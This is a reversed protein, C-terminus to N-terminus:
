HWEYTTWIHKLVLRSSSLTTSTVEMMAGLPDHFILNMSRQYTAGANKLRFTIVVWKFLGLFGPCQLATKHVDRKAMFIQNYEANGDLFSIMKNGSANNILVDAVPMPYEDKPM